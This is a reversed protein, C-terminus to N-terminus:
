DSNSHQSVTFLEVFRINNLLNGIGRLDEGNSFNGLRNIRINERKELVSLGLLKEQKHKLQSQLERVSKDTAVLQSTSLHNTTM